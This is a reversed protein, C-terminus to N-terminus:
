VQVQQPAQPAQMAQPPSPNPGASPPATAGASPHTPQQAVVVIYAPQYYVQGPVAVMAGDGSHSPQVLQAPQPPAVAGAGTAQPHNYGAPSQGMEALTGKYASPAGPTAGVALVEGEVPVAAPEAQSRPGGSPYEDPVAEPLPPTAPGVPPAAGGAPLVPSSSGAAPAGAMSPSPHPTSRAIVGYSALVESLSPAAGGGAPPPSSTTGPPGSSSPSPHPTALAIADYSALVEALTARAAAAVVGPAPVVVAAAGDYVAAAVVTMTGLACVLATPAM